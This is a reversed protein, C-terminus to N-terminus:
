VHGDQSTSLGVLSPEGPGQMAMEQEAALSVQAAPEGPLRLSM